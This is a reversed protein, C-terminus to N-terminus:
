IHILSLELQTLSAFELGNDSTISKFIEKQSKITTLLEKLSENVLNATRREIKLIIEM